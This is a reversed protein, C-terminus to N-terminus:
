QLRGFRKPPKSVNAIRGAYHAHADGLLMRLVGLADSPSLKNELRRFILERRTVREAFGYKALFELVRVVAFTPQGLINALDNPSYFESEQMLSWITDIMDLAM